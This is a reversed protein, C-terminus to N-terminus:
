QRGEKTPAQAFSSTQPKRSALHPPEDGYHEAWTRACRNCSSGAEGIHFRCLQKATKMM